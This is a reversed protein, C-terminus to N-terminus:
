SPRRILYPVSEVPELYIERNVSKEYKDLFEICEKYERYIPDSRDQNLISEKNDAYLQIMRSVIGGLTNKKM